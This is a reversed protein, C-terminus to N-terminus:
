VLDNQVLRLSGFTPWIPNKNYFCLMQTVLTIRLHCYALKSDYLTKKPESSFIDFPGFLLLYFHMAM